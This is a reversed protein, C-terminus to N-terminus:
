SKPPYGEIFTLQFGRGLSKVIPPKQKHLGMQFVAQSIAQRTTPLVGKQSLLFDAILRDPMLWFLAGVWSGALALRFRNSDYFLSNGIEQDRYEKPVRKEANHLEEAIRERMNGSFGYKDGHDIAEQIVPDGRKIVGARIQHLFVDLRPTKSNHGAAAAQTAAWLRHLANAASRVAAEFGPLGTTWAYEEPPGKIARSLQPVPKYGGSSLDYYSPSVKGTSVVQWTEKAIAAARQQIKTKPLRKGKKEPDSLKIAFTKMGPHDIHSVARRLRKRWDSNIKDMLLSRYRM